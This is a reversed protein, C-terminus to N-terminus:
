EYVGYFRHKNQMSKKLKLPNNKIYNYVINFHKENRILKDYYNDAWFTNKNQRLKNIENASVGKIIQMVKSLSQLPKFLLHVHNPMIAFAILEYVSNDKEVFYHHLYDLIDNVLYAGNNSQDLYQDIEFQKKNNLLNQTTIKKLFSDISDNTRFTVFQYHNPLDVHHLHKHNM